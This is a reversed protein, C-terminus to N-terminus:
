ILVDGSLMQKPVTNTSPTSSTSTEQKNTEVKAQGVLIDSEDVGLVEVVKEESKVEEKHIKAEQQLSKNESAAIVEKAKEVDEKKEESQLKKTENAIPTAPQAAKPKGTRTPLSHLHGVGIDGGLYGSGGWNKDPVLKVSRVSGDTSNYVYLEIEEKNHDRVFNTFEDLDTFSHRELGLIYDTLSKFGAKHLPSNVFFNLVRLVRTHATMYDEQNINIGLLGRGGWKKPTVKAKWKCQTAINFFTLDIEKNENKAIYENFPLPPDHPNEEGSYILFDLMPEIPLSSLPSDQYVKTIRYGTSSGTDNNAGM